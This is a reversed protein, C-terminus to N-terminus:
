INADFLSRSDGLMQHYVWGLRWISFLPDDRDPVSDMHWLQAHLLVAGFAALALGVLIRRRWRIQGPPPAADIDRRYIPPRFHRLFASVPTRTRFQWKM